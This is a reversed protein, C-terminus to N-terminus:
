VVDAGDCAQPLLPTKHVHIIGLQISWVLCGQLLSIHISGAITESLADNEQGVRGGVPKPTVQHSLLPEVEAQHEPSLLTLSDTDM